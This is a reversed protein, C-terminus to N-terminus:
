FGVSVQRLELGLGELITVDVDLDLCATDTSTVDVRDIATPTFSRQWDTDAVFDNALCDLNTVLDGGDFNAISNAYSSLDLSAESALDALRVLFIIAGLFNTRTWDGMYEYVHVKVSVRSWIRVASWVLIARYRLSPVRRVDTGM